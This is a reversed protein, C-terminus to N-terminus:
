LLRLVPFARHVTLDARAKKPKPKDAGDAHGDRSGEASKKNAIRQTQTGVIVTMNTLALRILSKMHAEQQSSM